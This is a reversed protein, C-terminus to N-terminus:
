MLKVMPKIDPSYEKTIINKAPLAVKKSLVSQEFPDQLMPRKLFSLAEM